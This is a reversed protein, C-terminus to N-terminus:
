KHCQRLVELSSPGQDKREEVKRRGDKGRDGRERRGERREERVEKKEKIKENM